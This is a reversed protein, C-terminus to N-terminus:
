EANMRVISPVARKLNDSMKWAYFCQGKDSYTIGNPTLQQVALVALEGAFQLTTM